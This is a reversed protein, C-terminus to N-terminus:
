LTMEVSVNPKDKHKWLLNTQVHLNQSVICTTNTLMHEFKSLHSVETNMLCEETHSWEVPPELEASVSSFLQLHQAVVVNRGWFMLKWSWLHVLTEEDSSSEFMKSPDPLTYERSSSLIPISSDSFMYSSSLEQVQLSLRHIIFLSCCVVCCFFHYKYEDVGVKIPSVIWGYKKVIRLEKCLWRLVRMLDKRTNDCCILKYM